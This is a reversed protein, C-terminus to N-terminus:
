KIVLMPNERILFSILYINWAVKLVFAVKLRFNISLFCINPFVVATRAFAEMRYHYLM